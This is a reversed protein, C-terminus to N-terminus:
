GTISVPQYRAGAAARPAIGRAGGRALVWRVPAEATEVCACAPVPPQFWGLDLRHKLNVGEM